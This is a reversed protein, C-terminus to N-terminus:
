DERSKSDEIARMAVIRKSAVERRLRSDDRNAELSQRLVKNAALDVVPCPQEFVSPFDNPFGKRPLYRLDEDEDDFDDLESFDQRGKNPEPEPETGHHLVIWCAEAFAPAIPALLCLLIRASHYHISPDIIECSDYAIIAKTLETLRLEVLQCTNSEDVPQVLAAIAEQAALWIKRADEELPSTTTDPEEPPIHVLSKPTDCIENLWRELNPEYLAEPIDAPQPTKTQTSEYSEYAVSAAKWVSEFWKRIENLETERYTALTDAKRFIVYVRTIDPGFKEVCKDLSASDLENSFTPIRLVMESITLKKDEESQYAQKGTSRLNLDDMISTQRLYKWYLPELVHSIVFDEDELKRGKRAAWTAKWKAELATFNVGPKTDTSAKRITYLLPRTRAVSFSGYTIQGLVTMGHKRGFM